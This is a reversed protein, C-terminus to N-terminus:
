LVLSMVSINKILSVAPLIVEKEALPWLPKAGLPSSMTQAATLARNCAATNESDIM